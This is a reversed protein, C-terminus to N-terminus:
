LNITYVDCELLCRLIQVHCNERINSVPIEKKVASMLCGVNPAANQFSDVKLENNPSNITDVLSMYSWVDIFNFDKELVLKELCKDCIHAIQRINGKVLFRYLSFNHFKLM